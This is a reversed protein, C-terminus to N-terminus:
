KQLKYTSHVLHLIHMHVINHVVNHVKNYVINHVINHVYTSYQAYIYM